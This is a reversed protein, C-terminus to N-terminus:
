GYPPWTMPAASGPPRMATGRVSFAREHATAGELFGQAARGFGDEFVNAPGGAWRAPEPGRLASGEETEDDEPLRGVWRGMPARSLQLDALAPEEVCAAGM